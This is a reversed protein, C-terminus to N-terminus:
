DALTKLIDIAKKYRKLLPHQWTQAVETYLLEEFWIKKDKGRNFSAWVEAGKSQYDSIISEANHIKDAISVAKINESASAVDQVYTEKRVEWEQSVDESVGEVIGAIESGLELVLQERTVVTDELVDHVYGAAIVVESFGNSQLLVGVMIPHAVYPSGDSKRLQEKHAVLALRLAKEQLTMSIYFKPFSMQVCKLPLRM